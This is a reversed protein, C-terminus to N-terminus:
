RPVGQADLIARVRPLLVTPGFPKELLPDEDIPVGKVSLMDPAYGSVYLVALGPQRRRMEAALDRGNMGPMVLDTILLDIGGESQAAIDLAQQGCCAELVRYGAARLASCTVQRVFDEDECILVTEGGGRIPAAPEPMEATRVEGQAAPFYLRMDTGRGPESDVAIHGGSSQTIGYVTALGLGTGRGIAKTTFFPEFLRSRTEATMGFGEDSVSLLVYAGPAAGPHGALDESSREVAATTVTVRGGSPMADRANLVLNLIVQEIQGADALIPPLHEALHLDIIVTAEILRQLMGQMNSVIHNLHLVEPKRVQKRSFALLQRTLRAARQGALEIQELGSLLDQDLGDHPGERIMGILTEANGLVATLLNNFDHAIGGALQGIAQLKHSQSLQQDMRRRHIEALKYETIDTCTGIFSELRGEGDHLPEAVVLVWRVQGAAHMFRFERQWRRGARVAQEWSVIVRTRDEPHVVQAWARGQWTAESSGTLEKWRETVFTLGGEKNSRFILSPSARALIEFQTRSENLGRAAQEFRISASRQSAHLLLLASPVLAGCLVVLGALVWRVDWHVDRALEDDIAQGAVSSLGYDAAALTELRGLAETRRPPDAFESLLARAQAMHRYHEQQRGEAARLVQSHLSCGLGVAGTAASVGLILALVAVRV